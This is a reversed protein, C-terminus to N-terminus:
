KRVVRDYKDGTILEYLNNLFDYREFMKKLYTGLNSYNIGDDKLKPGLESLLAKGKEALLGEVNKTLIFLSNADCYDNEAPLIIATQKPAPLELKPEPQKVEEAKLKLFESADYSVIAKDNAQTYFMVAKKHFKERITKALPVYDKDNAVIICVDIEPCEVLKLVTFATLAIDSTNPDAKGKQKSVGPIYHLETKCEYYAVDWKQKRKVFDAFCHVDFIKGYELAKELIVNTYSEDINDGDILLLVQSM